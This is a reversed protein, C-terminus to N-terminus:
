RSLHKRRTYCSRMIDEYFLLVECNKCDGTWFPSDAGKTDSKFDSVSIRCILLPPL